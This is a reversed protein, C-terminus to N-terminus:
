FQVASASHTKNGSRHASAAKLMGLLIESVLEYGLNRRFRGEAAGGGLM